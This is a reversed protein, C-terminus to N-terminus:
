HLTFLMVLTGLRRRLVVVCVWLVTNNETNNYLLCSEYILIDDGVGSQVEQALDPSIDSGSVPDMRYVVRADNQIEFWFM